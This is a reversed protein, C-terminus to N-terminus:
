HSKGAPPPATLRQWFAEVQAATEAKSGSNDIVVDAQQRKTELPLQAAERRALEERSWGREAARRERVEQAADVFLVFPCIKNWGAEVLLPVDLVIAPVQPDAALEAIQRFIMERVRPHILSELYKLESPGDPSAAFVIQGLRTRDVKGDSGFVADGWRERVLQKVEELELVRHAATDAVIVAAGKASLLDTVYSKGSAIGGAVGILPKEPHDM